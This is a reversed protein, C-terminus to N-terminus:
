GGAAAQVAAGLLRDGFLGACRVVPGLSVGWATKKALLTETRKHMVLRDAFQQQAWEVVETHKQPQTLKRRLYAVECDRAQIQFRCNQRELEM